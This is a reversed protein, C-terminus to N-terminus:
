TYLNQQDPMPQGPLPQGPLPQGSSCLTIIGPQGQSEIESSARHDAKATRFKRKTTGHIYGRPRYNLALWIAHCDRGKPVIILWLTARSRLRKKREQVDVIHHYSATFMYSLSLGLRPCDPRLPLASNEPMTDNDDYDPTRGAARGTPRGYSSSESAM